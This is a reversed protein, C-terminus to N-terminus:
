KQILEKISENVDAVTKRMKYFELHSPWPEKTGSGWCLNCVDRTFAQGAIWGNRYTNTNGYLITGMGQCTQCTDHPMVGRMALFKELESM